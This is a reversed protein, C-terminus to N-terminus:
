VRLLSWMLAVWRVRELLFAILADQTEGAGTAKAIPRLEDMLLGLEDKFATPPHQSPRHPLDFAQPLKPHTGLRGAEQM